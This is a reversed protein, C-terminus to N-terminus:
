WIQRRSVASKLVVFDSFDTCDKRLKLMNIQISLPPGGWLYAFVKEKEKCFGERKRKFLARIGMELSHHLMNQKDCRLIALLITHVDCYADRIGKESAFCYAIGTSQLASYKKHKHIITDM